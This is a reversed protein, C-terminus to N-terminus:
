FSTSAMFCDSKAIPIELFSEFVSLSTSLAAFKLLGANLNIYNSGSKEAHKLLDIIQFFDQQTKAKRFLLHALRYAPIYPWIKDDLGQGLKNAAWLQDELYQDYGDGIVVKSNTAKFFLEKVERVSM